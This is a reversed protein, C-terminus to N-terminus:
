NLSDMPSNVTYMWIVQRLSENQTHAMPDSSSVEMPEKAMAISVGNTICINYDYSLDATPDVSTLGDRSKCLSCTALLSDVLSLHWIM